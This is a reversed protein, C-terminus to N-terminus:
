RQLFQFVHAIRIDAVMINFCNAESYFLQKGQKGDFKPHFLKEVEISSVVDNIRGILIRKGVRDFLFDIPLSVELFIIIGFIKQFFFQLPICIPPISDAETKIRHVM